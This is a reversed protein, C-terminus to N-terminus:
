RNWRWTRHTCARGSHPGIRSIGARSGGGCPTSSAISTSGILMSHHFRPITPRNPFHGSFSLSDLFEFKCRPRNPTIKARENVGLSAVVSSMASNRRPLCSALSREVERKGEDETDLEAHDRTQGPARDPIWRPHSGQTEHREDVEHCPRTQALTIARLLVTWTLVDCRSDLRLCHSALPNHHSLGM